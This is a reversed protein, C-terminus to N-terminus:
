RSPPATGAPKEGASEASETEHKLGAEVRLAPPIEVGLGRLKEMAWAQDLVGEIKLDRVTFMCKNWSVGVRGAPLAGSSAAKIKEIKSVIKGSFTATLSGAAAEEPWEFDIVWDRPAKVVWDKPPKTMAGAVTSPAGARFGFVGTAYGAIAGFKCGYGNGAKDSMVHVVVYADGAAVVEMEVTMSVRVHRTFRPEIFFCSKDGGAEFSMPSLTRASERHFVLKSKGYSRAVADKGLAEGASYDLVVKGGSFKAPCAFLLSKHQALFALVDPADAAEESAAAPAAAAKDGAPKERAAGDAEPLWALNVNSGLLALEERALREAEEAPWAARLKGQVELGTYVVTSGLTFLSFSGRTSLTEGLRAIDPTKAFPVKRGKVTWQLAGKGAGVQFTFSSALGGSGAQSWLIQEPSYGLNRGHEGGLLAFSPERGHAAGLARRGGAALVEDSLELPLHYGTGFVVYEPRLLRGRRRWWANGDFEAPTFAVADEPSTFVAVNVNPAEAACAGVKGTVVITEEFPDGHLFRVEGTLELAKKDSLRKCVGPSAGAKGGSGASKAPARAPRAPVFDELQADDAFDYTLLIGGSQLTKLSQAHFFSELPRNLLAKARDAVFGKALDSAVGAPPDPWAHLLRAAERAAFTWEEPAAKEAAALEERFAKLEERRANLWLTGFAAVRAADEARVEESAASANPFAANPDVGARLLCLLSLAPPPEVDGLLGLLAAPAFEFLARVEKRKSGDAAELSVRGRAVATVRLRSAAPSALPDPLFTLDLEKQAAAAEEVAKTLREWLAAAAEVEARLPAIRDRAKPRQALFDDLTKFAAPFDLAAVREMLEHTALDLAMVTATHVSQAHSVVQLIGEVRRREVSPLRARLKEVEDRAADFRAADCLETARTACAALAANIKAELTEQLPARLAASNASAPFGALAAAAGALDGEALLGEVRRALTEAARGADEAAKSPAPAEAPRSERAEAPPPPAEVAAPAALTPVPEPAVEATDREPTASPPPVAVFAIAAAIAVAAAAGILGALRLKKRSDAPAASSARPSAALSPVDLAANLAAEAEEASAFREAPNRALLRAVALSLRRPVAPAREALPPAEQSVKKNLIEKITAGDFPPAGAIAHYLTAGLAYLDARHDLTEGRAQEPAMYAPSGATAGERSADPQRLDLAIGLDCVKVAGSDTLLLNGPKIDRHVIGHAQAFALAKLADCAMAVAERFPIPGRKLIADELAGGPLYEMAIYHANGEFGADHVQVVNPHNLRAAARAEKMFRAVFEPNAGLSATLIKLAVERELSIQHARYVTGMGGRGIRAQLRYGGLTTGVLPDDQTALFSFVSDGIRVLDGPALTTKRVAAGNVMTGNRSGADEITWVDRDGRLICHIRSVMADRVQVQCAQDRGFRIVGGAPLLWRKGRLSGREFVISPM